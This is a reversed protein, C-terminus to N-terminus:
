TTPVVFTVISSDRLAKVGYLMDSTFLDALYEQKYQTQSRVGLQEVLAMADAQFVVGAINDETAASDEVIPSNTTVYVDMGYVDGVYGNRISNGSAVEGVFAQETFRALGLLDFKVITPVCMARGAMPADADDLLKVFTRIGADSIDTTATEDWVTGDGERIEDFTSATELVNGNVTLSASGTNFMEVWLDSDVQKAIAYGADDTYFSRLSELAQVSVIDEILRSYEKHKNILISLGADTGHQQLTVQTEASKDSAAGRTPTPVKITDGKKGRHNLKRVLGGLVLNSKYAAIVEDSWLEPIFNPVETAIVHDTGLAM